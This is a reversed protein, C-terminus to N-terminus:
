KNSKYLQTWCFGQSVRVDNFGCICASHQIYVFDVILPSDGVTFCKLLAKLDNRGM